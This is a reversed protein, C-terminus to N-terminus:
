PGVSAAPNNRTRMRGTRAAYLVAGAVGADQPSVHPSTTAERLPIRHWQDAGSILATGTEGARRGRAIPTVDAYPGDQRVLNVSRVGNGTRRPAPRVRGKRQSGGPPMRSLAPSARKAPAEM